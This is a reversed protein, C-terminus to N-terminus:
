FFFSYKEFVILIHLMLDYLHLVSYMKGQQHGKGIFIVSGQPYASIVIPFNAAFIHNEPVECIM